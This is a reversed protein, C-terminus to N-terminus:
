AQFLASLALTSLCGQSIPHPTLHTTLKTIKKGDANKAWQIKGMSEVTSGRAWVICSVAEWHSRGLVSGQSFLTIELALACKNRRFVYNEGSTRHPVEGHLGQVPMM